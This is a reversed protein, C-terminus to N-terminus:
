HAPLSTLTVTLMGSFSCFLGWPKLQSYECKYEHMHKNDLQAAGPIHRASEGEPKREGWGALWLGDGSCHLSHDAPFCLVNLDTTLIHAYFLHSVLSFPKSSYNTM